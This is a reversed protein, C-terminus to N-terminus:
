KKKIFPFGEPIPKNSKTYKMLKKITDVKMPKHTNLTVIYDGSALSNISQSEDNGVVKLNAFALFHYDRIAKSNVILPNNSVLIIEINNRGYSQIFISDLTKCLSDLDNSSLLITLLDRSPALWGKEYFKALAKKKGIYARKQGSLISIHNSRLRQDTINECSSKSHLVNTGDIMMEGQGFMRSDQLFRAKYLVKRILTISPDGFVAKIREYYDSDESISVDRFYGITRFTKRSFMMSVICKRIWRANINVIEGEPTIRAYHCLVARTKKSKLAKVQLHIRSPHSYDDGDQFTIYDGTSLCLGLNRAVSTSYSNRLKIIRIRDDMQHLDELIQQTGDSSGDNVIIIELRDYTQNIISSVSHRVTNECNKVALIISVLSSGKVKHNSQKFYPPTAHNELFQRFFKRNFALERIKIIFSKLM